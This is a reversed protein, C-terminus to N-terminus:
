GSTEFATAAIWAAFPGSTYAAIRSRHRVHSRVSGTCTSSAIVEITSLLSM